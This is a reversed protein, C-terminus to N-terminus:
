QRRSSAPMVPRKPGREHVFAFVQLIEPLAIEIALEFEAQQRRVFQRLQSRLCCTLDRRSCRPLRFAYHHKEEAVENPGDRELRNRAEASTLGNGCDSGLARLTEAVTAQALREREVGHM